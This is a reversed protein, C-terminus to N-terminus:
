RPRETPQASSAVVAAPADDAHPVAHREVGAADYAADQDLTEYELLGAV